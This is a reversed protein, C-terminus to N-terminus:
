DGAQAASKLTTEIFDLLSIFGATMLQAGKERGQVEHQSVARTSAYIVTPVTLGHDKIWDLLELGATANNGRGMDSIVIFCSTLFEPDELMSVAQQTSTATAVEIHSNTLLDREIQNNTPYDDVWLIAPTHDFRDSYATAITSFRSAYSKLPQELNPKKLKPKSMSGTNPRGPVPAAGPQQFSQPVTVLPDYVEHVTIPGNVGKLTFEGHTQWKATKLLWGYALDFIAYSTFVHGPNALSQIRAARNVQSGFVDLSRQDPATVSVVGLDIGIRLRMVPHDSMQSQIDLSRQVAVNPLSFVALIGDGTSKIVKGNEDSEIIDRLLADHERRHKEYEIEGHQNRLLTSDVVDTFLIALLSSNQALSYDLVSRYSAPDPQRIDQQPGASNM